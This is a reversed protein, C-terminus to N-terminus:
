EIPAEVRVGGTGHRVGDPTIVGWDLRGRTWSVSSEKAGPDYRRARALVEEKKRGYILPWRKGEANYRAQTIFPSWVYWGSPVYDIKARTRLDISGDENWRGFERELARLKEPALTGLPLVGQQMAKLEGLSLVRLDRATKLIEEPIIEGVIFLGGGIIGWEDLGRTKTLRRQVRVAKCVTSASVSRRRSTVALM